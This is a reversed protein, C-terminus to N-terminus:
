VDPMLMIKCASANTTDQEAGCSSSFLLVPNPPCETADWDANFLVPPSPQEILGMSSTTLAFGFIVAAVLVELTTKQLLNLKSRCIIVVLCWYVCISPSIIFGAVLGFTPVITVAGRMLSWLMLTSVPLISEGRDLGFFRGIVILFPVLVLEAVTLFTQRMQMHFMELQYSIVQLAYLLNANFEQGMETFNGLDSRLGNFFQFLSSAM